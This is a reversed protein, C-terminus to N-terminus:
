VGLFYFKCKQKILASIITGFVEFGNKADVTSTFDLLYPVTPFIIHGKLRPLVLFIQLINLILHILM